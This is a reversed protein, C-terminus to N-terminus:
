HNKIVSYLLRKIIRKIKFKPKAYKSVLIDFDLKDLNDFFHQRNANPEASKRMAPNYKLADELVTEAYLMKDKLKEFIKIGKRSHLIVLSTGNNDDMEPMVKNIGWFDAVTIDSTRSLKKFACKYCSPRLASNNLFAKMFSDIFHAKNYVKGDAFKLNIAYNKWGFNKNRFSVEKIISSENEHFDVYKEWIMPSPTGHCIFDMCILQEYEKGLFSLLAEVQCPTGTFLVKKNNQLDEQVKLYVNGASCQLYKSGRLRNLKDIENVAIYEAKRCDESMAVGYVIGNESIINEALLTFIGGSSSKKRIKEDKNIAAYSKPIETCSINNSNGIPCVKQCKECNICKGADVAPYEFGENDKFMTVAQVPCVNICACCGCCDKKDNIVIM